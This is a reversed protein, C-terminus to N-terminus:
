QIKDNPNQSRRRCFTFIQWPSVALMAAVIGLFGQDTGSIRLDDLHTKGAKIKNPTGYVAGNTHGTFQHITKQTSIDTFVISDRFDPVFKVVEKLTTEL